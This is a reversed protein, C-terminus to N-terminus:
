QVRRPQRAAEAALANKTSTTVKQKKQLDMSGSQDEDSCAELIQNRSDVLGVPVLASNAEPMLNLDSTRSLEGGRLDRSPKRKRFGKSENVKLLQKMSDERTPSRPLKGQDNTPAHKPCEFESHGLQDGVKSAMERNSTDEMSESDKTDKDCSRHGNSTSPTPVKTGDNFKLRSTSGSCFTGTAAESFNQVRKKKEEPARLNKNYPLNGDADRIAPTPCELESHGILGCSFCFFPLKEYQLEYWDTRGTCKSGLM